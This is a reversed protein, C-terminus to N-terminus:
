NYCRGSQNRCYTWVDRECVPLTVPSGYTWAGVVPAACEGYKFLRAGGGEGEGPFESEIPDDGGMIKKMEDKSLKKM